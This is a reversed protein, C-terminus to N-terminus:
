PEAEGLSVMSSTSEGGMFVSQLERLSMQRVGELLRDFSGKLEPDDEDVPWVSVFERDGLSMTVQIEAGDENQVFTIRHVRVMLPELLSTVEGSQDDAPWALTVERSGSRMSTRIEGGDVDPTFSVEQVKPM